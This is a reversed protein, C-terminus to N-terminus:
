IERNQKYNTPDILEDMMPSKTNMLIEETKSVPSPLTLALSKMTALTTATRNDGKEEVIEM